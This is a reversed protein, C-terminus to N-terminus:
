RDALITRVEQMREGVAGVWRVRVLVPLLVYDSTVNGQIGGVGNLDRPMGLEPMNVNEHLEPGGATMVAPVIIEGVAPAGPVPELGRVDFYPNAAISAFLLDFDPDGALREVTERLADMALATDRNVRNLSTSGVLSQTLALLAVMLISMALMVEVMTVGLRAARGSGRHPGARGPVPHSQKRIGMNTAAEPM